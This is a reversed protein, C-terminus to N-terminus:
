LWGCGPQAGVCLTCSLGLKPILKVGLWVAGWPYEGTIVLAGLLRREDEGQFRGFRPEGVEGLDDAVEFGGVVDIVPLWNVELVKNLFKPPALSLPWTLGLGGSPATSSGLKM